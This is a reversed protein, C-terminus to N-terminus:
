RIPRWGANIAEDEDCFWREGKAATIKTRMYHPSWPMHYIRAGSRSINGKIPCGEPAKTQGVLWRQKRFEWAPVCSRKWFGRGSKRAALEEAVYTQSYRVFAWAHGRTVLARNINLNGVFCTALIRDYTDRGLSKCQVTRDNILAVLAARAKQGAPWRAGDDARCAQKLEPADIGELRIREGAVIITDADIVIATGSRDLSQDTSARPTSASFVSIGSAVVVLCVLTLPRASTRLATGVRYKLSKYM